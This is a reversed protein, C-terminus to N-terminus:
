VKLFWLDIWKILISEYILDDLDDESIEEGMSEFAVMLEDADVTGSGDTDM